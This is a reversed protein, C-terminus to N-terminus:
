ADRAEEYQHFNRVIHVTWGLSELMMKVGIQAPRMKGTRTKAEIIVLKPYKFFLFLDPTGVPNTTPLDMRSFLCWAGRARADAIIAEQLEAEDTAANEPPEPERAKPTKLRLWQSTMWSPM